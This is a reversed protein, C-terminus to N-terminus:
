DGGGPRPYFRSNGMAIYEIHHWPDLYIRMRIAQKKKKAGEPLLALHIAYRTGMHGPPGSAHHSIDIITFIENAGASEFTLSDDDFHIMTTGDLQEFGVEQAIDPIGLFPVFSLGVLSDYGEVTYDRVNTYLADLKKLDENPREPLLFIHKGNDFTFLVLQSVFGDNDAYISLTYPVSPRDRGILEAFFGFGTKQVDALYFQDMGEIGTVLLESDQFSLSISGPDVNLTHGAWSYTKPHFTYGRFDAPHFFARDSRFSFSTEEGEGGGEDSILDQGCLATTLALLVIATLSFRIM